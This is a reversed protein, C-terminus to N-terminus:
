ATIYSRHLTGEKLRLLISPDKATTSFFGGNDKDWFLETMKQQLQWAWELWAEQQSAEFLDLLGGILFAYDDAFGDVSGAVLDRHMTMHIVQSCLGPLPNNMCLAFLFSPKQMVPNM